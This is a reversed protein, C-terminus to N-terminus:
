LVSPLLRPIDATGSARTQPLAGATYQSSICETFDTTHATKQESSLKGGEITIYPM